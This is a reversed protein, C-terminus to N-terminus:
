RHRRESVVLEGGALRDNPRASGIAVPQQHPNVIQEHREPEHDADDRGRRENGCHECDDVAVARRSEEAEEEPLSGIM